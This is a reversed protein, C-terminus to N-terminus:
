AVLQLGTLLAGLGSAHLKFNAAQLGNDAQM